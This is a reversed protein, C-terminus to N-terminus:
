KDDVREVNGLLFYDITSSLTDGYRYSSTYQVYGSKIDLATLTDIVPSSFPNDENSIYIWTEGVSPDHEMINVDIHSWNLMVWYIPVAILATVLITLLLKQIKKM